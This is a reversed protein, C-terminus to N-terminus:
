AAVLPVRMAEEDHDDLWSVLASFARYAASHSVFLARSVNYARGESMGEIYHLDAFDAGLCLQADGTARAHSLVTGADRVLDRAWEYEPGREISIYADIAEDCARMPDAHSGGGVREGLRALSDSISLAADRKLDALHRARALSRQADVVSDFFRRAWQTM